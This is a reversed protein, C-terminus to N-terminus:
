EVLVSLFSSECLGCSGAHNKAIVDVGLDYKVHLLVPCINRLVRKSRGPGSPIIQGLFLRWM